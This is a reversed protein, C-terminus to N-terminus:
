RTRTHKYLYTCGCVGIMNQDWSPKSVQKIPRYPARPCLVVNMCIWVTRQKLAFPKKYTKPQSPSSQIDTQNVDLILIGRIFMLILSVVFVIWTSTKSKCRGRVTISNQCIAIMHMMKFHFYVYKQRYSAIFGMRSVSLLPSSSIHCSWSILKRIKNKNMKNKPRM